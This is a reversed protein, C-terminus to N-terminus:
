AEAGGPQVFPLRGARPVGGLVPGSHPRVPRTDTSGAAPM